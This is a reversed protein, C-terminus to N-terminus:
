DLDGRLRRMARRRDAIRYLQNMRMQFRMLDTARQDREDEEADSWTEGVMEPESSEGQMTSAGYISARMRMSHERESDNAGDEEEEEEVEEEVEGEEQRHDHHDDDQDDDQRDGDDDWEGGEEEGRGRRESEGRIVEAMVRRVEDVGRAGARGMLDERQARVEEMEARLNECRLRCEAAIRSHFTAEAGPPLGLAVNEECDRLDDYTDHLEALTFAHRPLAGENM